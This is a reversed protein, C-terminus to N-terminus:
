PGSPSRRGLAIAAGLAVLTLVTAVYAVLDGIRAYLTLGTLTRVQGVLVAPEFLRSRQVVRGYPDVIGSIGTNASRV